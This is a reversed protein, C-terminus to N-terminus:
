VIELGGVCSGGAAVTEDELEDVIEVAGTDDLGSLGPARDM